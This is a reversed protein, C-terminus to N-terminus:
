SKVTEAMVSALAAALEDRATEMGFMVGAFYAGQIPQATAEIKQAADAATTNWHELLTTLTTILETSM